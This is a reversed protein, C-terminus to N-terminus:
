LNLITKSCIRIAHWINMRTKTKASLRSIIWSQSCTKPLSWGKSSWKGITTNNIATPSSAKGPKKPFSLSLEKISSIQQKHTTKCGSESDYGSKQKRCLFAIVPLGQLQV